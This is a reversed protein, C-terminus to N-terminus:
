VEHDLLLPLEAVFSEPEIGFMRVADATDCVNDELLMTLQDSTLPFAPFREMLRVVPKMFAAPISVMKPARGLHSAIASLMERLPLQDAGGLEYIRGRTEPISLSAAMCRAVDGRSVPQLKSGGGGILPVVSRQVMDVLMSIFESGRDFIISPRFITWDLSSRRVIEEAAYKTRHYNSTANERAGLASMHIFRGARQQEASRVLIRTAETHLADFTIGRAPFERIIGVLHVVADCAECARLCANTDLVSGYVIDFSEDRGPVFRGRNHVLLRVQHGRRALERGLATGVYGTGGTLVVRM